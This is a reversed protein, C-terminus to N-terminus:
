KVVAFNRTFYDAGVMVIKGDPFKIIYHKDNIIEERGHQVLFWMYEGTSREQRRVIHRSRVLDTLFKSGLIQVGRSSDAGLQVERLLRGIESMSKYDFQFCQLDSQGGKSSNNRFREVSARVTKVCCGLKSAIMKYSFGNRLMEIIRLEKGDLKKKM